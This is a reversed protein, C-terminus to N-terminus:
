RANKHFIKSSKMKAFEEGVVTTNKFPVNGIELVLRALMARGHFPFYILEVEPM